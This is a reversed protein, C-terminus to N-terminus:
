TWADRLAIRAQEANERHLPTFRDGPHLDVSVHFGISTLQTLAQDIARLQQQLDPSAAFRRMVSEAPIPLRVHTMGAQRLDRLLAISPAPSGPSDVWGALNVGRSLANLTPAPVGPGLDVCADPRTQAHAMGSPLAVAAAMCLARWHFGSQWSRMM